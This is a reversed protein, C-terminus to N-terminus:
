GDPGETQVPGHRLYLSIAAAFDVTEAKHLCAIEHGAIKVTRAPPLREAEVEDLEVVLVIPAAARHPARVLGVGRAEIVGRLAADATGPFRAEPGTPGTVVETLDDAVLDAGLAILRLALASKGSGAAGRILM